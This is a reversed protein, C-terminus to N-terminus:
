DQLAVVAEGDLTQLNKDTWAGVKLRARPEGHEEFVEIVEGRCTVTAHLPTIATFRVNWRRLAGEGAWGTIAQALYAMSLMGHAFVDDVGAAKCYDSDIHLRVHDHSAGAFLALTTRTIPGQAHASLVDGVQLTRPRTLLDVM